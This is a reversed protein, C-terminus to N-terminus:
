NDSFTIPQDLVERKEAIEVHDTLVPKSINQEIVTRLPLDDQHRYLFSKITNIPLNPERSIVPLSKGQNRLVLIMEKQNSTM